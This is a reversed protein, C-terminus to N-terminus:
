ECRTPPPKSSRNHKPVLRHPDLPSSPNLGTRANRRITVPHRVSTAFYLSHAFIIPLSPYEVAPVVGFTTSIVLQYERCIDEEDLKVRMPPCLLRRSLVPAQVLDPRAAHNHRCGAKSSGHSAHRPPSFHSRRAFRCGRTTAGLVTGLPNTNAPLVDVEIRLLIVAPLLRLCLLPGPFGYLLPYCFAADSHQRGRSSTCRMPPFLM